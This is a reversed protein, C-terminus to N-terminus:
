RTIVERDTAGAARGPIGASPLSGMKNASLDQMARGEWWDLIKMGSLVSVSYRMPDGPDIACSVQGSLRLVRGCGTLHREDTM